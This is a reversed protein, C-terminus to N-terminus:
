FMRNIVLKLYFLMYYWMKPDWQLNKWIHLLITNNQVNYYITYQMNNGTYAEVTYIQVKLVATSVLSSCTHSVKQCKDVRCLGCIGYESHWTSSSACKTVERFLICRGFVLSLISMGLLIPTLDLRPKDTSFFFSKFNNHAHWLAHLM